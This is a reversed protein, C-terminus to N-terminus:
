LQFLKLVSTLSGRNFGAHRSMFNIRFIKEGEHYKMSTSQSNRDAGPPEALRRWWRKVLKTHFAAGPIIGSGM